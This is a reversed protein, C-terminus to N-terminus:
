HESSERVTVGAITWRGGDRGLVLTWSERRRQLTLDGDKPAAAISVDCAAVAGDAGNARTRCRDFALTQYKLGSFTEALRATDAGPWVAAISPADLSRYAQTVATLTSELAPDLPASPAPPAAAPLPAPAQQASPTPLERSIQVPPAAPAATEPVPASPAVGSPTPVPRGATSVGLSLAAGALAAAAVVPVVFPWSPSRTRTAVFPQWRQVEAPSATAVRPWSAGRATEPEFDDLGGEGRYDFVADLEARTDTAM